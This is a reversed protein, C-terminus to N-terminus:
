GGKKKRCLRQQPGPSLPGAKRAEDKPPALRAKVDAVKFRVGREVADWASLKGAAFDRRVSAGSMAALAAVEAQTM